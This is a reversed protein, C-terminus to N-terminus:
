FAVTVFEEAKKRQKLSVGALKYGKHHKGKHHTIVPDIRRLCQTAVPARGESPAFDPQPSVCACRFAAGEQM